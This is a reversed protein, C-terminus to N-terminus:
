SLEDGYNEINLFQSFPNIGFKDRLSDWSMDNLNPPSFDYRKVGLIFFISLLSPINVM